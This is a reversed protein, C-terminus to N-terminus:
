EMEMEMVERLEVRGGPNVPIRGALAATEDATGRLVYYGGVVELAESYPGDTVLLEGDRVRVTSATEAPQVAGGGILADGAGETFAGHAAAGDDWEETGPSDAATAPGHITALYRITGDAPPAEDTARRVHQVMPRIEVAGSRAAPINRVLEIVDDLTPAELVYFGGIGETTEAFPGSTVRVSGGDHHITRVSDNGCLAEGEVIADGALEGFAAYGEIDADWEPTGPQPDVAEDGYLMVFYQM